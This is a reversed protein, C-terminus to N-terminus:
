LHPYWVVVSRLGMTMGQGLEGCLSGYQNAPKLGVRCGAQQSGNTSPGAYLGVGVGVGVNTPLVSPERINGESPGDGLGLGVGMGEEEEICRKLWTINNQLDSLARLVM